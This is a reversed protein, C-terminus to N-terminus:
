SAERKRCPILKPMEEPSAVMQRIEVRDSEYAITAIQYRDTDVEHQSGQYQDLAAGLADWELYLLFQEESGTLGLDVVLDSFELHIVEAVHKGRCYQVFGIGGGVSKQCTLKSFDFNVLCDNEDLIITIQATTDKCPM